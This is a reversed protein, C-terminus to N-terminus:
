APKRRPCSFKLDGKNLARSREHVTEFRHAPAGGKIAHANSSIGCRGGRRAGVRRPMALGETSAAPPRM